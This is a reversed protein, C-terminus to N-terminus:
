IHSNVHIQPEKRTVRHAKVLKWTTILLCPSPLSDPFAPRAPTYGSPCWMSHFGRPWIYLGTLILLRVLSVWGILPTIDDRVIRRALPHWRQCGRAGPFLYPALLLGRESYIDRWRDRLSVVFLTGRELILHSIYKKIFFHIENTWQLLNM